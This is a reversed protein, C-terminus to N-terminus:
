RIMASVCASTTSDLGDLARISARAGIADICGEFSSLALAASEVPTRIVADFSSKPVHDQSCGRRLLLYRLTPKGSLHLTVTKYYAVYSVNWAAPQM